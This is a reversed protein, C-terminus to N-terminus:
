LEAPYQLAFNVKREHCTQKAQNFCKRTALLEVSIDPFLYIKSNNWTLQGLERARRMAREKGRFRLLKIIFSQPREGEKPRACLAQHARQIEMKDPFTDEGLIAPLFKEILRFDTGELIGMVRLNSRCARNELDDCESKLNSLETEIQASTNEIHYLKDEAEGIRGEISNTKEELSTLKRRIDELAAGLNSLGSKMEEMIPDLLD